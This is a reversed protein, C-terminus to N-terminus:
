TSFTSSTARIVVTREMGRFEFKWSFVLFSPRPLSPCRFFFFFLGQEASGEQQGPWVGVRVSACSDYLGNPREAKGGESQHKRQTQAVDISYGQYWAPTLASAVTEPM